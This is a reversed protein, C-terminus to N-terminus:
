CDDTGVIVANGVTVSGAWYFGGMHNHTWAPQKMETKKNVDEDLISMCVFNSVKKEGHWFGTYIYGDSYTIPSLSQGGSENKYVWLSELTKANFAQITGGLLPCFIMGEAYSMPTYGYGTDSIM